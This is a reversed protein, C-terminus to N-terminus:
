ADGRPRGLPPSPLESGFMYRVYAVLVPREGGDAQPLRPDRRQGTAALRLAHARQSDRVARKLRESHLRHASAPERFGLVSGRGFPRRGDNERMREPLPSEAAVFRREPALERDVSPRRHRCTATPPRRLDDADHRGSKRNRSAVGCGSMMM